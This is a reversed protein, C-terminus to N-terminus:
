KKNAAQGKRKPKDPIMKFRKIARGSKFQNLNVFGKTRNM